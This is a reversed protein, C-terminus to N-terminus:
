SPRSCFCRFNRYNATCRDHGVHPQKRTFIYCSTNCREANTGLAALNSVWLKPLGIHKQWETSIQAGTLMFNDYKEIAHQYVYEIDTDDDAGWPNQDLVYDYKGPGFDSDTFFPFDTRANETPLGTWNAICSGLWFGRLKDKYETRNIKYHIIEKNEASDTMQGLAMNTNLTALIFLRLYKM